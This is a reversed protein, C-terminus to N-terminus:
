GGPAVGTRPIKSGLAGVAMLAFAIEGVGRNRLWLGPTEVRVAAGEDGRLGCAVAKVGPALLGSAKVWVAVGKLRLAAQAKGPGTRPMKSGPAGVAMLAVAIEGVRRNRLGLGSTEVGVAAGKDGRLGCAVAKVGRALLGSAKM